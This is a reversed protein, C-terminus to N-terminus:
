TTLTLSAPAAEGEGAASCLVALTVGDGAKRVKKSYLFFREKEMTPCTTPGDLPFVSSTCFRSAAKAQKRLWISENFLIYKCISHETAWAFKM